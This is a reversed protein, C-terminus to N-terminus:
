HQWPALNQLDLSIPLYCELIKLVQFKWRNLSLCISLWISEFLLGQMKLDYEILHYISNLMYISSLGWLLLHFRFYFKQITPVEYSIQHFSLITPEFSIIVLQERAKKSSSKGIKPFQFKRRIRSPKTAIAQNRLLRAVSPLKVQWMGRDARESVRSYSPFIIYPNIVVRLFM